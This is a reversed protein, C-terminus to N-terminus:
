ICESGGDKAFRVGEEPEVCCADVCSLTMVCASATADAAGAVGTICPVAGVNDGKVIGTRVGLGLRAGAAFRAGPDQAKGFGTRWLANSSSSSDLLMSSTSM